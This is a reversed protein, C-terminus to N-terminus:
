FLFGRCGRMGKSRKDGGREERVEWEGVSRECRECMIEARVNAPQVGYEKDGDDYQIDLYGNVGVSTVYGPYYTPGNSFRSHVRTPPLLSPSSPRPPLYPNLTGTNPPPPFSNGSGQSSNWPGVGMGGGGGVREYSEFSQPMPTSDWHMAQAEVQNNTLYKRAQSASTFEYGEPSTFHFNRSSSPTYEIAWNDPFELILKRHRQQHRKKNVNETSASSKQLPKSDSPTKQLTSTPAPSSQPPSKKELIKLPVLKDVWLGKVKKRETVMPPPSPERSPPEVPHDIRFHPKKPNGGISVVKDYIWMTVEDTGGPRYRVAYSLEVVDKEKGGGEGTKRRFENPYLEFLYSLVPLPCYM